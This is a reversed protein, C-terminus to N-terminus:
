PLHPQLWGVPFSMVTVLSFYGVPIVPSPALELLWPVRWITDGPGTNGFLHSAAGTQWLAELSPRKIIETSLVSPKGPPESPLSDAQLTPSQLEIGDHVTIPSFQPWFFGRSSPVWELLRAQLIGHVSSGSPSLGQPRLSNSVISCSVCSWVCAGVCGCVCVCM